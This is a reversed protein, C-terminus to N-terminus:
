DNVTKFQDLDIFFVSLGTQESRAVLLMEELRSTLRERNYLGTLRDREAQIRMTESRQRLKRSMDYTMKGLSLPYIVLMPLAAVLSMHGAPTMVHTGFEVGGLALGLAASAVGYVLLRVGGAGIANTGAVALLLSSPLIRFHMMTVCYGLLFADFAINRQEGAALPDARLALRYAVPPWLVATVLLLIMLGISSHQDILVGGVSIGGLISGVMRLRYVRRVYGIGVRRQSREGTVAGTLAPMRWGNKYEIRDCFARYQFGLPLM